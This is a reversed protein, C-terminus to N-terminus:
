PIRVIVARADEFRATRTNWIYATVEWEGAGLAGHFSFGANAFRAGHAAAVDPRAAGMDATGLFVPESGQVKQRAWIHVAGIGSGTAAHPDLAWGHLTFTAGHQEARDLHMRVPEDVTPAPAVTVDVVSGQVTSGGEGLSRRAPGTSGQVEFSLRYRGLYGAGAVWTVIGRETDIGVGVPLARAEGNVVLAGSVVGPIHLEVRGLEPIRVQPVGDRAELAVLSQEVNYGTRGYVVTQLLAAHDQVGRDHRGELEPRGVETAVDASSNLVNFYRSGIGESRNASDTVGWSITHLGNSLTTTDIFRLGIAGRAADLNRYRTGAGRFISSVDDDCLVGTPVPNGVTGRCLNYTATGVATGDIYVTITSGTPPVLVSSGSDPTLVWGFNNLVGSVTAGQGPTDIAGFPKAITDNAVTVATPISDNVSRGLVKQNGEQDTAVAYLTFTGVGGGSSSMAPINPLLNSLILLGWGASNAAPLTPYLTEVDPRAGSIVSADGVFVVSLGLMTQCSGPSDIELCQRYIRVHQIGIDDVVWGTMAVAGQLGVAGHAPTDVQGVPAITTQSSATISLEVPVTIAPSTPDTPTITVAGVLATQTSMVYGPDVFSVRVRGAGASTEAQVHLWPVSAAATWTPAGTTFAITVAQMPTVHVLAGTTVNKTAGFRLASPSVSMGTVSLTVAESLLFEDADALSARYRYGHMARTVGYRTLRLGVVSGGHPDVLTAWTMGGDRSEQWVVLPTPGGTAALSFTAHAGAHATISTPQSTIALPAAVAPVARYVAGGKVVYLDGTSGFELEGLETAAGSWLSVVEGNPRVQRLVAGGWRNGIRDAVGDVFFVTGDARVALHSPSVLRASAGVGDVIGAQGDPHGAIITAASGDAAMRRITRGEVYYIDGTVPSVALGAIQGTASTIVTVGGQPTVRLLRWSDPQAFRQMRAVVSGDPAAALDALTEQLGFQLNAVLTVAGGASLRGLSLGDGFYVDTGQLAMPGLTSSTTHLVPGPVGNTGLRRMERPGGIMLAADPQAALTITSANRTTSGIWPAVTGGAPIREVTTSSGNNANVNLNSVYSAGEADILLALFGSGGGGTRPQLTAVTSLTGDAAIERIANQGHFQAIGCGLCTYWIFHELVRLRGSPALALGGITSLRGTGAPGDATGWAGSQGAILTVQGTLTVRRVTFDNMAVAFSGSTEVVIAVPGHYITRRISPLGTLAETSFCSSRLVAVVQVDGNLTVRRVTCAEDIVYAVDGSVAIGRPRTFRAALSRGNALGSQGPLGALTSVIGDTTLRRIVHNGGDAILLTGDSTLALGLISSSFRAQAAPGDVMGARDAIGAITTVVGGAVRRISAGDGLYFSGDPALTSAAVARVQADAIPGDLTGAPPTGLVRELAYRPPLDLLPPTQAAAPLACWLVAAVAFFPRM